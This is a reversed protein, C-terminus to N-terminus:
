YSRSWQCIYIYSNDSNYHLSLCFINNDVTCNPSYMKEAYIITDNIKKTNHALILVSQTKNTAHRSNNM